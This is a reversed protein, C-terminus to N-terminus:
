KDDWLKLGVMLMEDRFQLKIKLGFTESWNNM